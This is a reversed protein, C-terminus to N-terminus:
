LAMKCNMCVHLCVCAHVYKHSYMCACLGCARVCVYAAVLGGESLHVHADETM